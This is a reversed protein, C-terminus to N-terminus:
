EAKAVESEGPVSCKEKKKIRKLLLVQFIYVEMLQVAVVRETVRM